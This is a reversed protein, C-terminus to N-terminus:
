RAGGRDGFVLQEWPLRGDTPTARGVAMEERETWAETTERHLRANKLMSERYEESAHQVGYDHLRKAGALHRHKGTAKWLDHRTEHANGVDGARGRVAAAEAADGGPFTARISRAGALQRKQTREDRLDVAESLPDAAAGLEGTESLPRALPSLSDAM